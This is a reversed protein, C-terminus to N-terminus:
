GGVSAVFDGALRVLVERTVTASVPERMAGRPKRYRRLSISGGARVLVEYPGALRDVDTEDALVGTAAAWHLAHVDRTGGRGVKIDPGLLFAVEGHQDHTAEIRDGLRAVNEPASERWQHQARVALDLSLSEDGYLHRADLLATATDLDTRALKLLGEVTDVKQGLKIGADWIPYWIADAFAGIDADPRHVLAIDLDSQPAMDRRGYGGIAVLAADAPMELESGLWQVWRDLLESHADTFATGTLSTDAFLETRELIM